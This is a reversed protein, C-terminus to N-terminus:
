DTWAAEYFVGSPAAQLHCVRNRVSYCRALGPGAAQLLGEQGSSTGRAAGESPPKQPVLQM